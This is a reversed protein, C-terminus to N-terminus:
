PLLCGALVAYERMTRRFGESTLLGSAVAGGARAAAAAPSWGLEAAETTGPWRQPAAGGAAEADLDRGLELLHAQWPPEAEAAAGDGGGGQQRRLMSGLELLATVTRAALAAATARLRLDRHQEELQTVQRQCKSLQRELQRIKVSYHSTRFGTM